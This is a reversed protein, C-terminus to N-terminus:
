FEKDIMYSHVNEKTHWVLVFINKKSDFNIKFKKYKKQQMESKRDKLYIHCIICSSFFIEKKKESLYIFSFILFILITGYYMYTKKHRKQNIEVKKEGETKLLQDM